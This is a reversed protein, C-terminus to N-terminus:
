KGKSGFIIKIGAALSFGNMNLSVPYEDWVEEDYNGVWFKGKGSNKNILYFLDGEVEISLNDNEYNLTASYNKFGVYRYMADIFLVVNSTFNFEMTVGLHLGLFNRRAELNTNAFSITENLYTDNRSYAIKSLYIGGGITVFSTIFKSNIIKFYHNVIIPIANFKQDWIYDARYNWQQESLSFDILYERVLFGIEIGVAYKGAELGIEVGYGTFFSNTETTIVYDKGSNILGDFYVRDEDIMDNFDGGDLFNINGRFKIFLRPKSYKSAPFLSESFNIFFLFLITFFLFPKKSM